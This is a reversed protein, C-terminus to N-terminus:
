LESSIVEFFIGFMNDPLKRGSGESADVILRTTPTPAAVDADSFCQYVFCFGALLCVAACFAWLAARRSIIMRGMCCDNGIRIMLM